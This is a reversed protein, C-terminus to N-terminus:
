GKPEGDARGEQGLVDDILEVWADTVEPLDYRALCHVRAAAGLRERDALAAEIGRALGAVDGEPVLFGTEGPVVIDQVYGVDTSVVPLGSLGAEILVGPLGESSSTLLVVDAAALVRSVDDTAGLFTVRGPARDRALRALRDREPGEGVVLLHIDRHLRAVSEIAVDIRKERSLAAITVVVPRDAPIGLSARSSARREETAPQFTEGSRANPIVRVRASPLGFHGTLTSASGESLAAVARMRRLMRTVRFRRAGTGAWYLPDGINQYIIPRDLGVGAIVSAPLTTSGCAVVVDSRAIRHHLRLLTMPSLPSRGLPVMALPPVGAPAPALSHLRVDLGRAALEDSLVAAFSEPGRRQNRTALVLVRARGDHDPGRRGRVSPAALRFPM